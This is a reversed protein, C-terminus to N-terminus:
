ARQCKELEELSHNMHDREDLAIRRVLDGLSRHRPYYEFYTSDVPEKDWDPNEQVMFM